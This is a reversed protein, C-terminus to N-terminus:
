VMNYSTRFRLIEIIKEEESGLSLYRMMAAEAEAKVLRIANGATLAVRRPTKKKTTM